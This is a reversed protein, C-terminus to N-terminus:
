DKDGESVEDVCINLWMLPSVVSLGYHQGGLLDWSPNDPLHVQILLGYDITAQRM